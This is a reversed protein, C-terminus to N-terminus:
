PSTSLSQKPRGISISRRLGGRRVGTAAIVRPCVAYHQDLDLAKVLLRKVEAAEPARVPEPREEISWTPLESEANPRIREDKMLVAEGNRGADTLWQVDTVHEDAPIGYREALTVLRLGEARLLTPVKVRGLSRDIFLDPLGEPHSV